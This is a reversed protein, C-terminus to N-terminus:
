AGRKGVRRAEQGVRKRGSASGAGWPGQAGRMAVSAAAKIETLWVGAMRVPDDGLTRRRSSCFM